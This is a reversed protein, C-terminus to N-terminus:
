RIEDTSESSPHHKRRRVKPMHPLKILGVLRGWFELLANSFDSPALIKQDHGLGLTLILAFKVNFLGQALAPRLFFKQVLDFVMSEPM